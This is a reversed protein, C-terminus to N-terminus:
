EYPNIKKMDFLYNEIVPWEQYITGCADYLDGSVLVNRSKISQLFASDLKECLHLLITQDIQWQINITSDSGIRASVDKAKLRLIRDTSCKPLSCDNESKLDVVKIGEPYEFGDLSVQKKDCAFILFLTFILLTTTAKM